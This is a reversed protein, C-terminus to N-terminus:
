KKVEVFTNNWGPINITRIANYRQKSTFHLLQPITTDIEDIKGVSVNLVKRITLNSSSCRILAKLKKYRWVVRGM